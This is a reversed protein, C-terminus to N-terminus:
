SVGRSTEREAGCLGDGRPRRRVLFEEVFLRATRPQYLVKPCPGFPRRAGCAWVLPGTGDNSLALWGCRRKTELGSRRCADCDWGPRTPFFQFHFAVLLKKREEESWGPRRGCRPWPRTSCIRRAPSSLCSPRQRPGMWNRSWGGSAPGVGSVFRDIAAQLLPRPGDSGGTERGAELFEMRRAL